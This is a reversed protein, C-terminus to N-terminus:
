FDKGVDIFQCAPFEVAHHRKIVLLVTAINIERLHTKFYVLPLFLKLNTETKTRQQLHLGRKLM